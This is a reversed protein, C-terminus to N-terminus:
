SCVEQMLRPSSFTVGERDEYTILLEVDHLVVDESVEANRQRLIVEVENAGTKPYHAADLAFEIWHYPGPHGYYAEAFFSIQHLGRSEGTPCFTSRAMSADLRQGNLRFELRDRTTLGALRLRLTVSAVSRLGTRRSLEADGVQLTAVARNAPPNPQLAAPLPKPYSFRAVHDYNSARTAIYHKDLRQLREPDGIERLFPMAQRFYHPHIHMNFLQIGDVGAQWYHMAAARILRNTAEATELLPLEAMEISAFVKCGTGAGAALFEEVPMGFDPHWLPAANVVDVLRGKMWARIDLGTNWCAELTPPVRVSLTVARGRREAIRRLRDHLEAILGTMLDRGRDVAGPKFYFPHRTFDIELGESDYAAAAEELIALKYDRVDKHIYDLCASMRDDLRKQFTGGDMRFGPRPFHYEPQDGMRYEPHELWFRPHWSYQAHHVDNMRVGILFTLGARHTAELLAQTPDFGLRAFQRMNEMQQWIGATCKGPENWTAHDGEVGVAADTESVCQEVTLRSPMLNYWTSLLFTDVHTGAIRGVFDDLYYDVEMPAEFYELSCLERHYMLRM